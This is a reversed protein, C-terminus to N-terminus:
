LGIHFDIFFKGGERRDPVLIKGTNATAVGGVSRHLFVTNSIVCLM